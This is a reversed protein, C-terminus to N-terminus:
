DHIILATQPAVSVQSGTFTDLGDLDDALHSTGGITALRQGAGDAFVVGHAVLLIDDVGRVGYLIGGDLHATEETGFLDEVIGGV